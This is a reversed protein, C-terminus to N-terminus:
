RKNVFFEAMKLDIGTDIDISDCRNMVYAYMSDGYIHSGEKQMRDISTIYIAGNLCYRKEFQQSRSGILSDNVFGSMELSEPLSNCWQVPHGIETVGLVGDAGKEELLKAAEDIHMSTRLPSTPQLLSIYSFHDGLKRLTKYAHELVVYSNSSDAALGAPRMFPVDAGCARAIEAIEADDTSVVLRDIASSKLGAEITWQILSKGSLMMINKRPLRKSGGRAPIVGLCRKGNIM